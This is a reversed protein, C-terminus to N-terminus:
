TLDELKWFCYQEKLYSIYKFLKKVCVCVYVCM